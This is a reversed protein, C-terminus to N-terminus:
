KLQLNNEKSVQFNENWLSFSKSLFSISESPLCIFFQTGLYFFVFSTNQLLVNNNKSSALCISNVLTVTLWHWLYSRGHLSEKPCLTKDLDLFIIGYSQSTSCNNLKSYSVLKRDRLRHSMQQGGSYINGSVHSYCYHM